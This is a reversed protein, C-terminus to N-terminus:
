KLPKGNGDVSISGVLILIGEVFGWISSVVPGVLLLFGVTGLLVQIVAKKTYGLYFNHIGLGGLFIGLLGAALKSKSGEGAIINTNALSAGCNLCVAANPNTGKGCNPCYANGSGKPVGCKVCVIANRDMANGCNRCFMNRKKMDETINAGNILPQTLPQSSLVIPKKEVSMKLICFNGAGVLLAWRILYRYPIYLFRNLIRGLILEILSAALSILVVKGITSKQKTVTTAIKISLLATLFQLFFWFINYLTVDFINRFDILQPLLRGLTKDFLFLIIAAIVGALVSSMLMDKERQEM